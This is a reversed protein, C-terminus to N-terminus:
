KREVFFREVKSMDKHSVKLLYTGEQLTRVDLSTEFHTQTKDLSQAIIVRGLLDTVQITVQGLEEDNVKINIVESTPNPYLSLEISNTAFAFTSTRAQAPQVTINVTVAGGATGNGGNQTFPIARITQYGTPLNLTKFNGSNDGGMAYPAFNETSFKDGNREFVVSEVTQGNCDKTIAVINFATETIVDNNQLTRIVQNTNADVLQLETVEIATCTPPTVDGDTILVLKPGQVKTNEKSAFAADNGDLQEMVLSIFGDDDLLSNVDLEWTYENGGNYTANLRGLEFDAPPRNALSLNDETWNDSGGKSVIMTGNGNDATQTLVLKAGTINGGINRVDFQFYAVRRGNEVRILENNVRTGGQLYADHIPSVMVMNGSPTCDPTTETEFSECSPDNAKRVTVVFLKNSELGTFVNSSQFGQGISYLLPDGGGDATVTITATNGDCVSSVDSIVPPTCVTPEGDLTFVLKPGQVNGNEKSAFAADNGDLQEVVLSVIGDDDLVSNIDLEWSYKNGGNYAANLRGLEFDAPPRNSISLNDETWNDNGGKSVIITGNGSDSTQTLELKIGTIEGNLQVNRMDFQFYAVRRGKEIRILDNNVRTGNQLYADHVPSVMVMSPGTPIEEFNATITVDETIVFTFPNDTSTKDGTFNVFQFGANPTATVTVETGSEFTGGASIDGNAGNITTLTFQQVPAAINLGAILPDHDSARSDTVAFESNVHVIDFTAGSNLSPSTFIHDLSQSNGQFIFTYREDESVTNTLNTMGTNTGLGLVPSVFEFENLDGLVVINANANENFGNNVFDQVALSQAQREDLSGNVNVNEQLTEFPQQVGMIPASGGKSSFHNNVVTIEEDNFIFTAVLPLRAGEFAEGSGQGGITAVSNAKLAVRNPNYLFATRINGGPQGGSAEDTIFTNDIFEYSPGGATSIANILTQLTVDASIINDVIEGGTNDQIEQLGIIDPAKLNNVIQAAIADFRGNGLDDDVNRAENNNTLSQVEVKPDLNLVNYSAVTLIDGTGQINTSEPQLASATQVSFSQTPIIQFNGFDYGIM